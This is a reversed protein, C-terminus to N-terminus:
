IGLQVRFLIINETERVAGAGPEFDTREYNLYYKFVSAPHWNIGITFQKAQGSAGAAAFGSGFIDNDLDLVAYRAVLQLAGWTGNTPDFPSAPRIIGASAAEGTFLYAASIDWASNSFERFAGALAVRQTSRVYEGFVGLSRYYYFVSPSIRTRAGDATATSAYSFYTQGVSTRFAPLPGRQKGNSGGLQFGFGNLAGRPTSTTRFPYLVLRGAVDKGNNTDVDTTSSAGDPVGNFVGFAYYVKPNLDGQVQVGVDRNPVLSSALSREPFLLFADGILLEYGIPAKDKGSRVRLKPSFRIDFYADTITTTGNGFDPMVKFDFYRAVRGSFTPRVKRIAFTNTIPLPDDISFRGDLQAVLGFLLRYDGDASQVFFGDQWGAVVPASPTTPATVQASLESTLLLAATGIVAVYEFLRM